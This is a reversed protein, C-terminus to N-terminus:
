GMRYQRSYRHSIDEATINRQAGHDSRNHDCDSNRYQRILFFDFLIGRDPNEKGRRQCQSDSQDTGDSGIRHIQRM